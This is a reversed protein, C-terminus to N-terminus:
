YKGLVENLKTEILIIFCFLSFHSILKYRKNFKKIRKLLKIENKM